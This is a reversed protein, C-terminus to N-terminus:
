LPNLIRGCNDCYILKGERADKVKHVPITLRCGQCTTDRLGAVASGNKKQALDTYAKLLAPDAMRAQQDRRSLLQSLRLALENQERKLGAQDSQWTSEVASLMGDAAKKEAESEEVMIMAELMDDEIRARQRGLAEIERQLDTLEKPNKINGSYLRQESRKAKDNVSGLELRLDTHRTQWKQFTTAATAAQQRAATVAETEKQARIVEGLRQKGARIEDDIQQLDYLVKAQSM